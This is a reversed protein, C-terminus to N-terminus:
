KIMAKIIYQHPLTNNDIQINGYGARSLESQIEEAKLKMSDPPGVPTKKKFDVIYLETGPKMRKMLKQFYEVRNEIHHYTDVILVKDFQRAPLDPSDYPIKLTQINKSFIPQSKKKEEILKLFRDDVDAAIVRASKEALRFTFYGSGAGIEAVTKGKLNGMASLVLEPKQWADREPSDFRKVLEDFDMRHMHTNAHNGKHGSHHEHHDDHHSCSISFILILFTLTPPKM